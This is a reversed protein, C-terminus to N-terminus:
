MQDKDNNDGRMDAGCNPCYKWEYDFRGNCLSCHCRVGKIPEVIWEGRPRLANLMLERKGSRKAVILILKDIEVTPANDIIHEIVVNWCEHNYFAKKLEDADILRTM